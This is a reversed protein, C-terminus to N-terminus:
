CWLIKQFSVGIASCVVFFYNPEWEVPIRIIGWKGRKGGELEQRNQFWQISEDSILLYPLFASLGPKEFRLIM